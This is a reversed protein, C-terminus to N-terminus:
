KRIKEAIASLNPKEFQNLKGSRDKAVTKDTAQTVLVRQQKGEQDEIITYFFVEDFFGPLHDAIKGQLMLGTFRRGNEDKEPQSLATFVVNFGRLDRFAKIMSRLEASYEGWMVLADKRDPYKAQLKETLLQGIETLSDIVVWKYTERAQDSVLFQFVDKLRDYRKSPPVPAGDDDHSIDVFDVDHGSLSLLGAEASVVLTKEGTTSALTTKGTGPAGYILFKLSDHGVQKTSQIKM